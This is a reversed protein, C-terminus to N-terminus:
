FNQLRSGAQHQRYYLYPKALRYGQWGLEYASLWFEWDEWGAEMVKKFGGTQQYIERRFLATIPVQNLQLFQAPQFDGHSVIQNRTGFETIDTYVFGINSNAQLIELSEQLFNPHIQDDADVFLIYEGTCKSLGLNRTEIVGSHSKRLLKISHDAYKSILKEAILVTQDTSGDDVILCEWNSYNQEVISAIAEPLYEGHNYCAIIVFILPTNLQNKLQALEQASVATPITTKRQISREIIGYERCIEYTEQSAINSSKELGHTNNFYLGLIESFRAIKEQKGVRLWFEYDGAVQFEPRFYGYKEHLCKRWMPQSGLICRKELETYDFAPWNWRQDACTNWWTENPINTILQDAYVIAIEANEDLYNALKALADPRHRDDTNANTIYKGQALKIGRNWASYITERQDTREYIINNYKAQYQRAIAEENERSNSDIIIIELEGTQYLTQNVLDELCGAFFAESNYTSVIASVKINNSNKSIVASSRVQDHYDSINLQHPANLFTNYQGAYILFKEENIVQDIEQLYQQFYLKSRQEPYSRFGGLQDLIVFLQAFRSFRLWLEFDGALKIDDRLKGGSKLWLSRRWFTSEQQIWQDNKLWEKSLLLLRSWAPINSVIYVLKGARNWQTPQGMMWEIQPYKQLAFAVKFLAEPHYKDDANLWAMIEGTTRAFGSNIALYQGGDKESQWYSLYKEYKQIIAVSKDTSGGDMIVYELRPYNQSLISDICEELFEGQNLSPTVISIIPLPSQNIVTLSKKTPKQGAFHNTLREQM